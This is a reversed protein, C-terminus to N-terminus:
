RFTQGTAWASRRSGASSALYVACLSALPPAPLYGKARHPSDEHIHFVAYSDVKELTFKWFGEGKGLSPVGFRPAVCLGDCVEM